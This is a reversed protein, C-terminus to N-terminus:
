INSLSNSQRFQGLTMKDNEGGDDAIKMMELLHVNNLYNENDALAIAKKPDYENSKIIDDSTIMDNWNESLYTLLTTTAFDEIALDTFGANILDVRLKPTNEYLKSTFTINFITPTLDYDCYHYTDRIFDQFEKFNTFIATEINDEKDWTMDRYQIEVVKDYEPVVWRYFIDDCTISYMPYTKINKITNSIIEYAQSKYQEVVEFIESDCNPENCLTQDLINNMINITKEIFDSEFIDLELKDNNEKIRENRLNVVLGYDDRKTKKIFELDSYDKKIQKKIEDQKKFNLANESMVTNVIKELDLLITIVEDWNNYNGIITEYTLDEINKLLIKYDDETLKTQHTKIDNCLEKLNDYETKM